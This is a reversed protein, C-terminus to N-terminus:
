TSALLMMDQWAYTNCHTATQHLMQTNQLKSCHGVDIRADDSRAVISINSAIMMVFDCVFM